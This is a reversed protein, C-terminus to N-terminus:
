FALLRRPNDILMRDLDPERFGKSVLRPLFDTYIYGMPVKENHLQPNFETAAGRPNFFWRDYTITMRDLYGADGLECIQNAMKEDLEETNGHRWPIGMHDIQVSAGRDCIAKIQETTGSIFAHGIIVKTPDAGEQELFDLQDLGPNGVTYDMPDTHTNISCGLAKQTRGAGRIAREEFEGIRRGSPGIPTPRPNVSDMGTAIKIIGAKIITQTGAYVMGETIDRTYFEAFEEISQRRWWYPFGLSEPFFGTTGLIHAGSRKAVDAMLQPHRGVEAPTLDVLTRFGYDRMAAAVEAAIRETAAALDFACRHDLEAGPYTYLLHEHTLTRGLTAPDVDGLVTRVKAV